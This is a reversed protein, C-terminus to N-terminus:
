RYWDPIPTSTWGSDESLSVTYTTTYPGESSDSWLLTYEADTWEPQASLEPDEM